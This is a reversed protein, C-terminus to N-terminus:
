ALEDDGGSEDEQWGDEVIRALDVPPPPENRLEKGRGERVMLKAALAILGIDQESLSGLDGTGRAFDRVKQLTERNASDVEIAFPLAKIKEQTLSDKAEAMVEPTTVLRSNMSLLTLDIKILCNADIVRVAKRQM